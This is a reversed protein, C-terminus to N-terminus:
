RQALQERVVEALALSPCLVEEWEKLDESGQLVGRKAQGAAATLSRQGLVTVREACKGGGGGDEKRQTVDEWVQNSWMEGTGIRTGFMAATEWTLQRGM